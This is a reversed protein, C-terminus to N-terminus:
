WCAAHFDLLENKHEILGCVFPSESNLKAANKEKANIGPKGRIDVVKSISRPGITPKVRQEQV